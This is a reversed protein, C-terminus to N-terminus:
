HKHIPPQTSPHPSVNESVYTNVVWSGTKVHVMIPELQVLKPEFINLFAKMLCAPLCASLCVPLCVCDCACKYIRSTVLEDGRSVCAERCTRVYLFTEVKNERVSRYVLAPFYFLSRKQTQARECPRMMRVCTLMSIPPASAVV